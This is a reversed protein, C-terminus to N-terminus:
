NFHLQNLSILTYAQFAKMARTGPTQAYACMGTGAAKESALEGPVAAPIRSPFPMGSTETSEPSEPLCVQLHLALSGPNRPTEPHLHLLRPHLPRPKAELGPAGLSPHM